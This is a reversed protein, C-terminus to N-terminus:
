SRFLPVKQHFSATPLNKKLATLMGRILALCTDKVGQSFIVMVGNHNHRGIVADLFSSPSLLCLGSAAPEALSVGYSRVLALFIERTAMLHYANTYVVAKPIAPMGPNSTSPPTQVVHM